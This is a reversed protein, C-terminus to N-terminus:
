PGSSDDPHLKGPVARRTLRGDWRPADGANLAIHDLTRTVIYDVADEITAPHNYFAPVPPVIHVGMRNLKLMNELHIENLPSERVMLVLKRREKLVVDAARSILDSAYGGAISALTKVSCPAVIMGDTLFSGSSITAGQDNAKHVVDALDRVHDLTYRTEHEITRAGWSSIILHTEVHFEQLRELIRVGFIAGTAGTIAVILRRPRLSTEVSM